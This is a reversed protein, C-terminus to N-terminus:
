SNKSKEKEIRNKLCIAQGISSDEQFIEKLLAEGDQYRGEDAAVMIELLKEEYCFGHTCFYCMSFKRMEEIYYFFHERNGGYYYMLALNYYVYKQREKKRVYGDISGYLRAIVKEALRCMKVADPQKGLKAYVEVLRIYPEAVTEDCAHYYYRYAKKPDDKEELYFEGIKSLIKADEGYQLEVQKLTRRCKIPNKNYHYARALDMMVFPKAHHDLEIAKEYCRIAKEYQEMRMYNEGMEEYIDAADPDIKLCKKLCENAKGYERNRTYIPAWWHYMGYKQQETEAHPEALKYYRIAEKYNGLLRHIYGMSSLAYLDEPELQYSEIMDPLARDYEGNEIFVYARERLYYANKCNELQKDAHRVAKEYYEEERTKSFLNLYQNMLTNHIFEHGPALVVAREYVDIAKMTEELKLYANGMDIYADAMTSDLEVVREYCHIAKEYEGQGQYIDALLWHHQPVRNDLKVAEKAYHLSKKTNTILNEEKDFQRLSDYVLALRYDIEAKKEPLKHLLEEMEEALIKLEQPNKVKHRQYDLAYFDLEPDDVGNEEAMLFIQELENVANLEMMLRVLTVYPKGQNPALERCRHFDDIVQQVRYLGYNAEQRYVYAPFFFESIELCLNAERICDEYRHKELFTDMRRERYMFLDMQEHDLEIARNLYEDCKEELDLELCFMSAIFHAYGYRRSKRSYDKEDGKLQEINRIWIKTMEYGLEYEKTELLVRALINYYDFEWEGEPKMTRLLARCDEFRQNQYYCWCMDMKKEPKDIWLKILEENIEMLVDCIYDDPVKEELMDLCISKGEEYNGTEYLTKVYHRAIPIYDTGAEFATKLYPLAGLFDGEEMKMEGIFDSLYANDYLEDELEAILEKWDDGGQVHSLRALELKAYPHTIESERVREACSVAKEIDGEEIHLKLMTADRIFADYDANVPGEFLDFDFYDDHTARHEIYTVFDPSIKEAIHERNEDFDFTDWMRKWVFRPVLYHNMLFTVMAERADEETDLDTCVENDFIEDWEDEDIRYYFNDYLEEMDYVWQELPGKEKKAKQAWACAEEYATRLQKFEEPHEEPNAYILKEHYATKIAAEDTTKDIGLTSWM